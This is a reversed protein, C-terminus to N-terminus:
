KSDWEVFDRPQDSRYSFKADCVFCKMFDGVYKLEKIEIDEISRCHLFLDETNTQDVEEEPTEDVFLEGLKDTVSKIEMVFSRVDIGAKIVELKTMVKEVATKDRVNPATLNLKQIIVDVGVDIRNIDKVRFHPSSNSRRRDHPPGRTLSRGRERDQNRIEPDPLELIEATQVEAEVERDVNFEEAEPPSRSRDSGSRSIDLDLKEMNKM